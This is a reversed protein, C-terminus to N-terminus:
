SFWRLIRLKQKYPPYIFKPDFSAPKLFVSKQYSFTDFGHRGNYRGTGSNGVGGFPLLTNANHMLTANICGGGFPLSDIIRESLKKDRTFLYLALPREKILLIKIVEEIDNYEIVPLLPGFIEEEMIRDEWNINSLITPAIYLSKDDNDGGHYIQENNLYSVLRNFHKLNIIRSYDPSEKINDGYFSKIQIVLEEKLQQSINKDALIYDPAICTQGANSFKGWVIRRAAIKIDADGHVICPSKGGLELLMPTLSKAASQAIIKAIASSGTFAIFDWKQDLLEKTEEIGGEIVTCYDETFIERILKAILSSSHPALESPKIVACNGAALIPVLPGLCLQFPYNWPAINLVVGYPQPYILSKGPFLELPTKVKKPKAWRKLNKIAFKIENLIQMIETSYAEFSPKHLDNYLATTIDDESSIIANRLKILQEVRFNIDKTNGNNFFQRQKEVITGITNNNNM